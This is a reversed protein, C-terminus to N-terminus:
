LSVIATKSQWKAYDRWIFEALTRDTPIDVPEFPSTRVYGEDATHRYFKNLDLKSGSPQVSKSMLRKGSVRYLTQVYRCFLKSHM